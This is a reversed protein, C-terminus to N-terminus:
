LSFYHFHCIYAYAGDCIAKFPLVLHKHMPVLEAEPKAYVIIDIFTLDM